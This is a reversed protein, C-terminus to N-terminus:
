LDYIIITGGLILGTIAVISSEFPTFSNLSLYVGISLSIIGQILASVTTSHNEALENIKSKNQNIMGDYLQIQDGYYHMEINEVDEEEESLVDKLVKGRSGVNVFTKDFTLIASSMSLILFISGFALYSFALPNITLSTGLYTLGTLLAGAFIIENRLIKISLEDIQNISEFQREIVQRQDALQDQVVNRLSDSIEQEDSM